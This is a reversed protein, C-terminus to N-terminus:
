GSLLPYISGLLVTFALLLSLDAVSQVVEEDQSFLFGLKSSFGLCLAWFFLGIMLGTSMLVKISFKTANADGRGLENAVRM